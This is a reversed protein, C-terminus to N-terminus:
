IKTVPRKAGVLAVMWPLWQAAWCGSPISQVEAPCKEGAAVAVALRIQVALHIQPQRIKNRAASGECGFQTRLVALLM